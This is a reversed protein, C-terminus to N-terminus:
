PTSRHYKALHDAKVSAIFAAVSEPGRRVPRGEADAVHDDACVPGELRHPCNPRLCEYRARFNDMDIFLAGDFPPTVASGPTDRAPAPDTTM